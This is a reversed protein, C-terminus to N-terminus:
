QEINDVLAPGYEIDADRKLVSVFMGTLSQVRAANLQEQLRDLDAQALQDGNNKVTDTEASAQDDTKKVDVEAEGKAKAANTQALVQERVVAATPTQVRDLAILTYGTPSSIGAYRAQDEAPKPMAFVTQIIRPELQTTLRNINETNQWKGVLRQQSKSLERGAKLHALIKRATKEALQQAKATKAASKVEAKVESFPKTAAPKFDLPFMVFAAGDVEVVDSNRGASTFESDFVQTLLEPKSLEPVPKAETFLPTQKIDLKFQEAIAELNAAEFAATALEGLAVQYAQERQESQYDSMLEAKKEDFTEAPAAKIEVLKILHYGFETKVPKSVEGKKLEFLAQEFPEVFMGRESMPLAGGEAASPKDASYQQALAAFSGGAVLQTKIDTALSLAQKASREDTTDILIHSAQRQEQQKLSEVYDKYLTKLQTSTLENPAVKFTDADLRVYAVKAQAAQLYAQQNEQYYTKLDQESLKVQDIFQEARIESTRVSRQQAQLAIARDLEKPVTFESVQFSDLLHNLALNLRIDAFLTEVPLNQSALFRELVEPDIKGDPAFREDQRLRELVAQQPPRVQWSELAHEVLTRDVWRQAAQTRFYSDQVMEPSIQPNQAFLAQKQQEVMANLADRSLEADDVAVAPTQSSTLSLLAESGVVVFLAIVVGLVVKGFTGHALKRFIEM